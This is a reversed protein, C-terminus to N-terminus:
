EEDGADLIAEVIDDKKMGARLRIDYEKALAKLDALSMAKLDDETLDEEDGEPEAEDEEAEEEDEDEGLLLDVLADHDLGRIDAATYESEKALAKLEALSMAELDEKSYTGDEDEEEDAEDEDDEESETDEDAEDETDEDADDDKKDGNLGYEEYLADLLDSKSADAVDEDAYGEEVALARLGKISMASLSAKTPAGDKVKATILTDATNTSSKDGKGGNFAAAIKAVQEDTLSITINVSM